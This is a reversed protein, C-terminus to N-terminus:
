ARRRLVRCILLMLALNLAPAAIAMTLKLDDAPPDFLYVWPFGLPLLFVGSLPDKEQGLLGYTGVILLVVAFAYALGFLTLVVRCTRMM